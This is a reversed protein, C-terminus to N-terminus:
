MHPLLFGRIIANDNQHSSMLTGNQCSSLARILRLSICKIFIKKGLVGTPGPVM